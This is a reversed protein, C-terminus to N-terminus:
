SVGLTQGSRRRRHMVGLGLAAVGAIAAYSAPEPVASLPTEIATGPTNEFAADILTFTSAGESGVAPGTSFEGYGYYTQGGTTLELGVYVDTLNAAVPGYFNTFSTSPGVTTGGTLPATVNFPTNYGDMFSSQGNAGARFHFQFQNSSESVSFNETGPNYALFINGGPTGSTPAFTSNVVQAKAGTSCLAVAGLLTKIGTSLYNPTKFYM